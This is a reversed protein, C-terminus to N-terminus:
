VKYYKHFKSQNIYRGSRNLLGQTAPVTKCVCEDNVSEDLLDDKRESDKFCKQGLDYSSPIQYKVQVITKAGMVIQCPQLNQFSHSTAM